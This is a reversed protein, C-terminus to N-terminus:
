GEDIASRRGSTHQAVDPTVAKEHLAMVFDASNYGKDAGLTAPQPTATYPEILRLAAWREPHGTATTTVAGVILGNRNEMLAHGM